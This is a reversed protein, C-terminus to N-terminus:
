IAIFLKRLWQALVINPSRLAGYVGTGGIVFLVPAALFTAEPVHITLWVGLGFFLVSLVFIACRAARLKIARKPDLPGPAQTQAERRRDTSPKPKRKNNRPM